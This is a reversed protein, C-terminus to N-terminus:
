MRWGYLAPGGEAPRIVIEAPADPVPFEHSLLLTGPAMEARAKQWLAPMAAPSLYAFIVDYQGFDLRQYDGREFRVGTGSLRSRVRSILWPLPAIEIGIFTGKRNQRALYLPLGGLGSGIDIFRVEGVQPLLQEVAQWAPLGSPYFPVRTRFTSWYLLLLILFAGLFLPPPLHLGLLLVLAIPFFFQIAQWWAEQRFCRSAITAIAGQLAAAAMVHLAVGFLADLAVVLILTVVFSLVQLVLALM